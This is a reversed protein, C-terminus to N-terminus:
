YPGDNRSKSIDDLEILFNPLATFLISLLILYTREIVDADIATKRFGFDFIILCFFGVTALAFGFGALSQATSFIGAIGDRLLFLIKYTSERKLPQM